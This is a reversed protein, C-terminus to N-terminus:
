ELGIQKAIFLIATGNDKKATQWDTNTISKTKISTDSFVQKDVIEYSISPNSAQLEAILKESESDDGDYVSKGIVNIGDSILVLIM